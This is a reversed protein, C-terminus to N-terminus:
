LLTGHIGKDDKRLTCHTQHCHEQYRGGNKKRCATAVSAIVAATTPASSVGPEAFRTQVSLVGKRQSSHATWILNVGKKEDFATHKCGIAVPLQRCDRIIEDLIERGTQVSL